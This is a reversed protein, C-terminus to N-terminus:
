IFFSLTKFEFHKKTNLINIIYDRIIFKKFQLFGLQSSSEFWYYFSGSHFHYLSNINFSNLLANFYLKLDNFFVRIGLRRANYFFWYYPSEGHKKLVFKLWPYMYLWSMIYLIIFNQLNAALLTYRVRGIENIRLIFFIWFIFIFVLHWFKALLCITLANNVIRTRKFDIDLNWLFEDTDFTWVLNGYFNIIHFFQYFELWFVYILLLTIAVLTPVQKTFTTWKLSLLLYYSLIVLTVVPILKLLFVRWSFLHTKFLKIQDYMYIPEEPANWTLFFFVLFVGSEILWFLIYTRKWFRQIVTTFKSYQYKKIFFVFGSLLWYVFMIILIWEFIIKSFPLLRIYTLYYFTVLGLILGLIWYKLGNWMYKFGSFYHIFYYTFYNINNSNHLNNYFSWNVQSLRTKVRYNFSFFHRSFPFSLVYIYVLDLFFIFKNKKFFSWKKKQYNYSNLNLKGYSVNHTLNSTYTTLFGYCNYIVSLIYFFPSYIFRLSLKLSKNTNSHRLFELTKLMIVKM